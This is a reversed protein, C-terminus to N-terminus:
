ALIVDGGDRLYAILNELWERTKPGSFYEIRTDSNEINFTPIDDMMRALANALNTADQGLMIDGDNASYSSPQATALIEEQEAKPLHEVRQRLWDVNLQVGMPDWGGLEDALKLVQEWIHTGMKIHGNENHLDMSM